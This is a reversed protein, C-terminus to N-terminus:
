TIKTVFLEFPELVVEFIAGGRGRDNDQSMDREPRDILIPAPARLVAGLREEVELFKTRHGDEVAVDMLYHLLHFTIDREVGRTRGRERLWRGACRRRRARHFHRIVLQAF